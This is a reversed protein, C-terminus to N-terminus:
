KLFTMKTHTSFCSKLSPCTSLYLDFSPFVTMNGPLDPAITRIKSRTQGPLISVGKVCEQGLNDKMKDLIDWFIELFRYNQCKKYVKGFKCRQGEWIKPHIRFKIM